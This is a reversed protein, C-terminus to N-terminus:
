RNKTNSKVLGVIEKLANQPLYELYKSYIEESFGMSHSKNIFAKIGEKSSDNINHYYWMPYDKLFTKLASKENDGFVIIPKTFSVYLYAKSPLYHSYPEGNDFAVLFDSSAVVNNLEDGSVANHYKYVDDSQNKETSFVDLVLGLEKFIEKIADGNRFNQMQGFYSFEYTNEINDYAAMVDEKPILLPLRLPYINEFDYHKYYGDVFFDPVFYAVANAIEDKEETAKKPTIYPREIFTDYLISIYPINRKKCIKSFNKLPSLSFFFVMDPKETKLVKNIFKLNSNQFYIDGIIPLKTIIKYVLIKIFYITKKFVSIEYKKLFSKYSLSIYTKYGAEQIAEIPYSSVGSRRIIIKKYESSDFQELLNYLIDRVSNCQDLTGDFVVTLTKMYNGGYDDM